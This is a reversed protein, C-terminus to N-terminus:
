WLTGTGKNQFLYGQCHAEGGGGGAFFPFFRKAGRREEARRVGRLRQDGCEGGGRGGKGGGGRGGRPAAARAGLPQGERLRQHRLRLM